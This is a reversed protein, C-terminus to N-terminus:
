SCKTKISLVFKSTIFKDKGIYKKDSSWRYKNVNGIRAKSPNQHYIQNRIIFIRKNRCKVM